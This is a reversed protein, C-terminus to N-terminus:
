EAQELGVFAVNSRYTEGAEAALFLYWGPVDESMTVRLELDGFGQMRDRNPDAEFPRLRVTQTSVMQGEFLTEGTEVETPQVLAEKVRNRIYFASGGAAEAMDRIISEYFYMIMPNGVGAPFRGLGRHKGDQRFDLLAMEVNKDEVIRMAITGTDRDAAEPKLANTVERGYLLEAERPVDDLTGNRFLLDYAQTTEATAPLAVCLGAALVVAQVIKRM